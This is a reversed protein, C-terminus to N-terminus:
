FMGEVEFSILYLPGTPRSRFIQRALLFACATVTLRSIIKKETVDHGGM